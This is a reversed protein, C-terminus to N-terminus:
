IEDKIIVGDSAVRAKRSYVLYHEAESGKCKMNVRRLISEGPLFPKKKNM